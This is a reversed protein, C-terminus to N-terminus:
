FTANVGFIYTRSKPYASYDFNPMRADTKLNVEPDYGSYNTLIAINNGTLYFRLKSMHLIGKVPLSYGVTLNNFRLFSGDEIAFSSTNFAGNGSLPIWMKANANVKALQDPPVGYVVGNSIWQVSQGTGPDVTRWRDKMIALENSNPSYANTFEIRNANYVDFDYMFNVFLSMDWRKYTFTQNLGGSFKANPNGIVTRDSNLDVKGDGNLDKYKISGPQIPNGIIPSVDVTGPKLTYAGSSQNYNFDNVTYFGDAVLGYMLGIPQGVRLIYDNSTIQYAPGVLSETQGPGLAIIKNKNHSINFSATWGLGKPNRLITGNLQVEFGRNETQGINQQQTSFGYTPDINVNLLLDKSSNIYYDFSIDLRNKLLTMDLGWNRNVTSEWQLDPNPLSNPFYGIITQGNLGYYLSGNNTFINQYLYDDIRNNGMTGFGFRLKLDNIFDVNQLFKERKIRWAISGAPFMGWRKDPAFKSVGDRRLNASLLYKDKYSYGIRGFFSLQTFRAKALRPYGTLVVGSDQTHFANYNGFNFPYDKIRTSNIETKFDYTEEGLLFDFSHDNGAKMSYSLVNSNTLTKTTTTDLSVFPKTDYTKSMSSLTDFYQRDLKQNWDVGVTSKFTLNKLITYQANVTVNYANTTKRRFESNALKIPNVLNLGNGVAGSNLPDTYDEIDQSNSIWPRYRIANRM